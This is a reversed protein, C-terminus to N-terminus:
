RVVSACGFVTSISGVASEQISECTKPCLLVKSPAAPSDFYWAADDTDCADAGQVKVFTKPEADTSARYVVNTKNPELTGSAPKPVIYECPLAAGRIKQLAEYFQSESESGKDILFAADTGGARAITNLNSLSRGVGIVFTPIPSTATQAKKAVSAVGSVSSGCVNPEGDTALIVAVKHTPHSKQWATAHSIAGQLAQTMPTGVGAGIRNIPDMSQIIDEANDPLLGIPVAPKEYAIPDCLAGSPFFGIGAGLGEAGPKHVFSTVAKTIANWESLGLSGSRDLMFYLDLPVREATKSEGACGNTGDTEPATNSPLSPGLDNRSTPNQIRDEKTDGGDGASNTDKPSTSSKSAGTDVSCGLTAGAVIAVLGALAKCTAITNMITGRSEPGGQSFWATDREKEHNGLLRVPAEHIDVLTSFAPHKLSSWFVRIHWDRYLATGVLVSDRAPVFHRM